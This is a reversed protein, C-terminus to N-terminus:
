KMKFLSEEVDWEGLNCFSEPWLVKGDRESPGEDLFCGCVACRNATRQLCLMCKNLRAEITEIRATRAGTLKHKALAKAYNWAMKPLAPLKKKDAPDRSLLTYGYDENQHEIVSWEQNERMWKRMAVFLGPGSPEGVEGYAGTSRLLIWRRVRRGFKSLEAYLRDAQHISHIVLMDTEDIDSLLMWDIAYNVYSTDGAIESLQQHVSSPDSTYVRLVKPRGALLTIDFEKQKVFATIHNCKSALDRFRPMYKGMNHPHSETWVFAEEITNGIRQCGACPSFIHGIPDELLYNWSKEDIPKDVGVFHNKIGDLPLQLEQHGIVYNRVRDWYSLPYSTGNPRLFRHIWRLFPLNLCKRDAQRYKVHIYGEEGGFGRFTPNFGLWASKRCTFLGMGNAPIEFPQDHDDFGIQKCGISRFAAEHGFYAIKPYRLGCDPCVMYVKDFDMLDHVITDEAAIPISFHRGCKCAWARSWIGWMSGRWILDFHTSIDSLNNYVLPGTLLDNNDPNHEYWEILREIAGPVLMVHCDMCLVFETQAEEFVRGKANAAGIVDEYAIYRVPTEALFSAVAKGDPTNPSNDIMILDVENLDHYLRLAQISFYIGDFDNYHAMGITLKKVM